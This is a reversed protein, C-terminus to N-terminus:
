SKIYGNNFGFLNGFHDERIAVAYPRFQKNATLAWEYGQSTADGAILLILIFYLLPTKM